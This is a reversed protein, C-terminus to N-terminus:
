RGSVVANDMNLAGHLGLLRGGGITNGLCKVVLVHLVLSYFPRIENPGLPTMCSICFIVRQHLEQHDTYLSFKAENLKNTM